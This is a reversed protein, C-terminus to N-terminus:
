SLYIVFMLIMWHAETQPIHLSSLAIAQFAFEKIRQSNVGHKRRVRGM